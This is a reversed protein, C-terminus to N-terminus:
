RSPVLVDPGVIPQDPEDADICLPMSAAGPQLWTTGNKGWAVRLDSPEVSASFGWNERVVTLQV